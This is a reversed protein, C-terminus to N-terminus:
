LPIVLQGKLRVPRQLSDKSVIRIEKGQQAAVILPLLILILQLIKKM